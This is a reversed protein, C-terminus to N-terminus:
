TAALDSERLKGLKVVFNAAECIFFKERLYFRHAIVEYDDRLSHWVRGPWHEELRKWTFVSGQELLIREHGTHYAREREVLRRALTVGPHETRPPRRRQTRRDQRIWALYQAVGDRTQMDEACYTTLIDVATEADGRALMRGFSVQSYGLSYSRGGREGAADAIPLAWGLVSRVTEAGVNM